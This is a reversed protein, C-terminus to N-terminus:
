PEGNENSKKRISFEITSLDYGRAELEKLYGGEFQFGSFMAYILRADAKLTGEGWSYLVDPSDNPLEGYYAKLQGPKAKRQRWRKKKQM